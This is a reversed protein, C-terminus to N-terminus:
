AAVTASKRARGRQLFYILALLLLAPIYFVEKPMRERAVQVTDIKLPNDLDGMTFLKDLHKLKSDWTLGDVVVGTDEELVMLGAQTLRTEGDGGPGLNLILSTNNNEDPDDFDPGVLKVRLQSNDPMAEAIKLVEAGPKDDFPPSVTDLWFGPRFLTFAILLLVASEGSRSKTIFWSQTASAFLMMAITAIIFVFVAKLPTVDMLLLETNFLFLFPLLATRIDYAFGQVGTKIPDGKSIAAAAYAALGVPPTDDALIGFYFVFLHVAVLPVILGSKAGLAVIVPAMLGSVVLYNATTPLGMGLILSMIAVLVLMLLLNGGSLFEVFEGVM